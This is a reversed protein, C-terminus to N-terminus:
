TLVEKIVTLKEKILGLIKADLSDNAIMFISNVSNDQTIRHVRAEAQMINAPTFDLEAFVVTHAKTLTVGVGCAVMNAVIVQPTETTQFADIIQERKHASTAGIIKHMQIDKYSANAKLAEYILNVVDVHVCFVVLKTIGSRLLHEIYQLTQPVKSVGLAKRISANHSAEETLDTKYLTYDDSGSRETTTTTGLIVKTAYDLLELSQKAIKKNIDIYVPTRNISPLEIGASKKTRRLSCSKLYKIIEQKAYENKFGKYVDGFFSHTCKMYRKRYEYISKCFNPYFVKLQTYLDDIDRTIPTGTLLIKMTITPISLLHLVTKTRKSVPTKIYHSEDVIIALSAEKGTINKLLMKYNNINVYWEYSHIHISIHSSEGLIAQVHHKWTGQMIAPCVIVLAELPKKEHIQKVAVLAQVTKGLGQEDLLIGGRKSVLFEVGRKQYKLLKM